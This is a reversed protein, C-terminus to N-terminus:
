VGVIFLYVNGGRHGVGVRDVPIVASKDLKALMIQDHRVSSKLEQPGLVLREKGKFLVKVALM